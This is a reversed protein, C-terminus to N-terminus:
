GSVNFLCDGWFKGPTPDEGRDPYPAPPLMGGDLFLGTLIRIPDTINLEEDDDADLAHACSPLEGCNQGTEAGFLMCLLAIADTIDLVSSGDVDGRVFSYPGLPEPGHACAGAHGFSRAPERPFVRDAVEASLEMRSLNRGYEYVLVPHLGDIQGFGLTHLIEHGLVGSWFYDAYSIGTLWDRGHGEHALHEPNLRVFFVQKEGHLGVEADGLIGHPNGGLNPMAGIIILTEVYGEPRAAFVNNCIVKRLKEADISWAALEAPSTFDITFQIVHDRLSNKIFHIAAAFALDRGEGLRESVWIRVENLADGLYPRCKPIDHPHADPTPYVHELFPGETDILFDVYENQCLAPATAACAAM